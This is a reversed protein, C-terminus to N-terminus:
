REDNGMERLRREAEEAWDAMELAAYMDRAERVDGKGEEKQGLNFKAQGLDILVNAISLLAEETKSLKLAVEYYEIAAQWNGEEMEMDGFSMQVNAFGLMAQENQFLPLAQQYLERARAPNGTQRELDGLSKLTYAFGLM